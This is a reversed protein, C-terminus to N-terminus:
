SARRVPVPEGCLQRLAGQLAVAGARRGSVHRLVDEFARAADVASGLTAKPHLQLAQQLWMRLGSSCAPSDALNATATAVVDAIGRPYEASTLTRRMLIALVLAGLQTVDARQDFRPLSASPPLALGFERWLQERNWNLAELADGFLAGTLLVGGERCFTVHAPSLAGHVPAGPLQHLSAVAKITAAALELIGQDSLTVTRFELAALLDALTVGEPAATTISLQDGIRGIRYIPALMPARGDTFRAARARIAQEAAPVALPADVDLVEVRGFQPDKEVRRTGFGDCRTATMQLAAEPSMGRAPAVVPGEGAPAPPASVKPNGDTEHRWGAAAMVSRDPSHATEYAGAPQVAPNDHPAVNAM